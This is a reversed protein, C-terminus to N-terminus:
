SHMVHWLPATSIGEWSCESGWSLTSHPTSRWPFSLMLFFLVCGMRKLSGKYRAKTVPYPWAKGDKVYARSQGEVMGHHHGKFLHLTVQGLRNLMGSESGETWSQQVSASIGWGEVVQEKPRQIITFVIPNLHSGASPLHPAGWSSKRWSKASMGSRLPDGGRRSTTKKGKGGLLFTRNSM